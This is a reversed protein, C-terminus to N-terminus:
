WFGKVEKFRVKAKINEAGSLLVCICVVNVKTLVFGNVTDWFLNGKQRSEM